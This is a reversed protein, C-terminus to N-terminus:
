RRRTHLVFSIRGITIRDGDSLRASPVREGNLFTGNTSGLDRLGIILHPGDHTVRIECHRRSISSDELSIQANTDRGIITIPGLLPYADGDVDIWPRSSPDPLIDPPFPAPDEEIIPNRATRADDEDPGWYSLDDQRQAEREHPTLYSDNRRQYMRNVEATGKAASNAAHAANTAIDYPSDPAAVADPPFVPNPSVRSRPDDHPYHTEIVEGPGRGRRREAPPPSDYGSTSRVRFVGTELDDLDIFSVRIPGAPHYRQTHIHEEASAILEETLLDEYATLRDYDSISLEVVFNNPVIARDSSVIAAKDDMAKRMAAGIEVPQVEAKFARAFAGNITSALKAEIRDFLGM